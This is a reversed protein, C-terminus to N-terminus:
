AKHDPLPHVEDITCDLEADVIRVVIHNQSELRKLRDVIVGDKRTVFAYGRGLVAMPNVATLTRAMEALSARRSELATRMHVQFQQTRIELQQQYEKIRRSPRANKLRIHHHRWKERQVTQYKSWGTQLRRELEDLKQMQQQLRAAPSVRDLRHALFRLSQQKRGLHLEQFNQQLQQDLKRLRILIEDIHPAALEAAASPTPARQDAVLDTITFDSEHGVGSIIPIPCRAIARAVEEENFAWLDEISGGGRCIILVDCCSHASAWDIAKTIEPAAQAGQVRTSYVLISAPPYRRELVHCVDKLAAGVPSSIVGITRPFAPLSKKRQVDFLGESDLRAKLQEFRQHLQGAGSREMHQVVLQFEGRNQYIGARAQILMNEGNEPLSDFNRNSGRFMACRVQAKDDKLTFYWHGSSAATFNSIEGEVWVPAPFYNKLTLDVSQILYSVSYILELPSPLLDATPLLKEEEISM